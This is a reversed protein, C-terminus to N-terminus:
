SRFSKELVFISTQLSASIANGSLRNGCYDIEQMPMGHNETRGKICFQREFNLISFTMKKKSIM